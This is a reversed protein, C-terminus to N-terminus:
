ALPTKYFVEATSLAFVLFIMAILVNTAQAPKSWIRKALAM